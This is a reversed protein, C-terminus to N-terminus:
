LHNRSIFSSETLKELTKLGRLSLPQFLSYLVHGSPFSNMPTKVYDYEVPQNVNADHIASLVYARAVNCALWPLPRRGAYGTSTALADSWSQSGTITLPMTLPM